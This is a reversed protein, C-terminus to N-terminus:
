HYIKPVAVHLEHQLTVQLIKDENLSAFFVSKKDHIGKMKLQLNIWEVNVGLQRLYDHYIKGEVIIPFAINPAKKKIDLDEM